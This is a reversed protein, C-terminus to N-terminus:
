TDEFSHDGYHSGISSQPIQNRAKMAEYLEAAIAARQNDQLDLGSSRERGDLAKRIELKECEKGFVRIWGDEEEVEGRAYM